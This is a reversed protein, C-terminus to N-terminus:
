TEGSECRAPLRVTVTTGEMYKSDVSLGYGEGYQMRIRAQVVAMGFGNKKEPEMKGEIRLRLDRLEEETMGIGNDQVTFVMDGGDGLGNVTIRGLGRKNKIGHYLANEVIPQLTLKQITCGAIEEDVTIEYEMIDRYRFHQIELYSRIHEQEERVTILDRGKSLTTRFFSSLEQIMQVAQKNEGSETLWTIADLTNYLFHPNVQEQMLRLEMDRANKQERNIDEVLTGIEGVMSNFSDALTKLEDETGPDYSVSFDGGAFKTTMDCLKTVPETISDALKKSGYLSFLIVAAVLLILVRFTKLFSDAVRQRLIEMNDAEDNIYIHIDDQILSTLTRINLDLMEMNEDYHGGEEVNRLIDDVREDLIGLLKLLASLDAYVTKSEASERLSRFHEEAERILKKPDEGELKEEADTWNASGIIIKYMMEDMSEKFSMNYENASTINRVLQDYARYFRYMSAFTFIFLAIMPVICLMSFINLRARIGTGGYSRLLKKM